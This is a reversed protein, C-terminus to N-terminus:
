FHPQPEPAPVAPNAAPPEPAAPADPSLTGDRPTLAPPAAQGHQAQSFQDLRTNVQQGSDTAVSTLRRGHASPQTALGVRDAADSARRAKGYYFQATELDGDKEAIYGLNNLTFASTPDLAYAKLFDQRATDWNNANTAAVGRVTMMTARSKSDGLKYLREQVRKLSSAALSSIPKGRWSRRPSVIITESSQLNAAAGYHEVAGDLDGISEDAVGLNNLTFPNKPDLVLARQLLLEAEFGRDQTLLTIAQVNMRNLRMSADKLDQLAYLMPKGKLQDLSSVDITADCDQKEALAYFKQARDADGQLEATYGLNNLTFPDSPDFLYAKYFLAEAKELQHRRAAEVGERNLNQVPTLKSYRPITIRLETAKAPVAGLGSCLITAAIPFVTLGFRRAM